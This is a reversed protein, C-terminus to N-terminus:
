EVKLETWIRNYLEEDEGLDALFHMRDAAPLQYSPGNRIEERILPQAAAVTNAYFTTNAIQAAVEPRLLYNIFVEATRKRRSTAPVALNDVFVLTGESPIVFGVDPNEAAARAIEGTWGQVLLAEGSALSDAFAESDYKGVFDKQATITAQARALEDPNVSNPSFGHRLLGAGIVERLDNLMSIRGRAGRIRDADLIDAWSTPPTPFRARSYAIGTAGWQFPVSFAHDPDYSPAVFRPELNALNPLRAHDLRALLGARAMVRVMYDSPTIVDIDDGGAQLKALLDENSAFNSEVVRVGYEERFARLVDQDIYNAWIFLNITRDLAPEADQRAPAALTAALACACALLRAIM